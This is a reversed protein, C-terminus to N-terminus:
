ATSISSSATVSQSRAAKSENLEKLVAEAKGLDLANKIVLIVNSAITAYLLWKLWGDIHMFILSASALAAFAFTKFVKSMAQKSADKYFDINGDLNEASISNVESKLNSDTDQMKVVKLLANTYQLHLWGSINIESDHKVQYAKHVSSASLCILGVAFIMPLISLGWFIVSFLVFLFATCSLIVADKIHKKHLIEEYKNM